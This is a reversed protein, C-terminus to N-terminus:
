YVVYTSRAPAGGIIFNTGIVSDCQDKYNSDSGYIWQNNADKFAFSTRNVDTSFAFRPTFNVTLCLYASDIPSVQLNSFGMSHDTDISPTQTVSDYIITSYAKQGQNWILPTEKNSCINTTNISDVIRLDGGKTRYCASILGNKNPVSANVLNASTIAVIISVALIVLFGFKHKIFTVALNM